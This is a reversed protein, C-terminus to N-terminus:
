KIISIIWGLLESLNKFETLKKSLLCTYYKESISYIAIEVVNDNEIENM